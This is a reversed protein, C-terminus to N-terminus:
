CGLRGALMSASLVPGVRPVLTINILAWLRAALGMKNFQNYMQVAMIIGIFMGTLAVVPVSRVGVLYFNPLLTRPAPRRRFTWALAKGAFQALDGLACLAQYAQEGLSQILAPSPGAKAM